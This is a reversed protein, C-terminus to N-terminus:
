SVKRRRRAMALAAVGVPLLAASAPLPVPAPQLSLDFDAFEFYPSSEDVYSLVAAIPNQRDLSLSGLGGSYSVWYNDYAERLIGTLLNKGAGALTVRISYEDVDELKLYGRVTEGTAYGSFGDAVPLAAAEEESCYPCQITHELLTIDAKFVETAAEAAAGSFAIATVAAFMRVIM